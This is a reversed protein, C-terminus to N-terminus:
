RTFHRAIIRRYAFSAVTATPAGYGITTGRPTASADCILLNEVDHSEFFANVVSNKRDTGARCAGTNSNFSTGTVERDELIEKAGMKKFIERGIERGQKFLNQISPHKIDYSWGARDDESGFVEMPRVIRILMSGRSTVADKGNGRSKPDCIGRMFDKHEKGFQPAEPHLAVLNMDGITPSDWRFKIREMVRDSRTDHVAYFGGDTYHGDTIPQPFIGTLTLPGPRGDINRGVNPNDVITRSDLLDKPGYGSKMLLLPTGFNGCSVMIKPAMLTHSTGGQNYVVGTARGREIIIKQAEADAIIDVKQKELIPLYAIFSGQRSDYKCFHTGECGWCFICNKKAVNAPLVQHGLARASDRFLLDGPNLLEDRRTHINFMQVVEDAAERFNAETWDTLGHVESWSRYDVDLPVRTMARWHLSGGGVLSGAAHPFTNPTGPGDPFFQMQYRGKDHFESTINTFMRRRDPIGYGPRPTGRLYPGREILAVSLPEGNRPNVGKEATRAALLFGAMGSGVIILDYTKDAM